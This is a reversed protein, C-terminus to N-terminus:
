HFILTLLGASALCPLLLGRYVCAGPEDLSSWPVFGSSLSCMGFLHIVDLNRWSDGKGRTTVKLGREAGKHLLPGQGSPDPPSTAGSHHHNDNWLLLRVPSPSKARHRCPRLVIPQPAITAHFPIQEATLSLFSERLAANPLPAWLPLLPTPLPSHCQISLLSLSVAPFSCRRARVPLACTGALSVEELM